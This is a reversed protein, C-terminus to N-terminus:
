HPRTGLLHLGKFLIYQPIFTVIWPIMLTALATGFLLDRGPFRM